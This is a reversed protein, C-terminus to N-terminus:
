ASHNDDSDDDIANIAGLFMDQLDEIVALRNIENTGEYIQTLRADRFGKEAYNAHLVGHNGLLEMATECVRVAADSCSVKCISANAQTPVGRGGHHWIMARMAATDAIMEAALLQIEQFDILSRGAMRFRCAFDIAAEMAGRAIGLAIAGVPIRSYNLTARSLAWGNRLGGIVHDDPVLVDAFELETAGSARQGMKLENRVRAFGPMDREVLFCTWSAMGEGALAAFVMVADAVDGGSIYVKRGNLSWGGDVRHAITAPKYGTAGIGDEVDSGGAPETIAFAFLYPQGAAALKNAPILFRKIAKKDGSILLPMMGLFHASLFLGWGGCAACLEEVKIAAAWQQPYDMLVVDASGLPQPLHDFLVGAEAARQLVEQDTAADHPQLDGTLARPRLEREAFERSKRRLQALPPPLAATDQEWISRPQYAVLGTAMPPLNEFARRPSLPDTAPVHGDLNHRTPLKM